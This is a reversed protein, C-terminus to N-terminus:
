MDALVRNTLSDHKVSYGAAKKHGGGGHRSAIEQVDINDNLARLSVTTCTPKCDTFVIYEPTAVNASKFMEDFREFNHQIYYNIRSLMDMGNTWLYQVGNKDVDLKMSYTEYVDNKLMYSVNDFFKEIAMEAKANDAEAFPHSTIMSYLASYIHSYYNKKISKEVFDDLIDGFYEENKCYWRISNLAFPYRSKSSNPNDWMTSDYESILNSIIQMASIYNDMISESALQKFVRKTASDPGVEFQTRLGFLDFRNKSIEDVIEKDADDRVIHHDIVIIKTMAEPLVSKIEQLRSTLKGTVNLDTIIVLDNNIVDNDLNPLVNEEYEPISVCVSDFTYKIGKEHCIREIIRSAMYQCGFGDLDNHSILKISLIKEM